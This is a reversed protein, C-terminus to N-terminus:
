RRTRDPHLAPAPLLNGGRAGRDSARLAVMRGCDLRFGLWPARSQGASAVPDSAGPQADPHPAPRAEPGGRGGRCQQGASPGGVAPVTAEHAAPTPPIEARSRRRRSPERDEVVLLGLLGISLCALGAANLNPERLPRRALGLDILCRALWLASGFFLWLFAIWPQSAQHGVLGYWERADARVPPASRPNRVSWFRSFKFFITLCELLTLFLWCKRPRGWPPSWRVM